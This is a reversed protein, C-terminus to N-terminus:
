NQPRWSRALRLLVQHGRLWTPISGTTGTILLLRVDELNYAVNTLNRISTM